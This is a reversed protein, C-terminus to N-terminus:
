VVSETWSGHFEIQRYDMSVMEPAAYDFTDVLDTRSATKGLAVVYAKRDGSM